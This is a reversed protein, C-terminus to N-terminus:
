CGAITIRYAMRDVLLVPAPVKGWRIPGETLSGDGDIVADVALATSSTANQLIIELAGANAATVPSAADKDLQMIITDLEIVLGTSPIERGVYPGRWRDIEAQTFFNNCVDKDSLTPKRVLLGLDSPYKGVNREFERLAQGLTTVTEVIDAIRAKEQFQGVNALLLAAIVAVIGLAVVIEALSFGKPLVHNM